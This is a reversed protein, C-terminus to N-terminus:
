GILGDTLILAVEVLTDTGKVPLPALKSTVFAPGFVAKIRKSVDAGVATVVSKGINALVASKIDLPLAVYAAAIQALV